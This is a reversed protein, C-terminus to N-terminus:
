IDTLFSGFNLLSINRSFPHFPTLLFCSEESMELLIQINSFEFHFHQTADSAAGLMEM